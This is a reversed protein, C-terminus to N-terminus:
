ISANSVVLLRVLGITPQPHIMCISSHGLPCVYVVPNNVDDSELGIPSIREAMRFIVGDTMNQNADEWIPIEGTRM